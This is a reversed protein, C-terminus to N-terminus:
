PGSYPTFIGTHKGPLCYSPVLTPPLIGTHKGPLCYSPVLTPPLFVQLNVQFVTVLSWLLSDFNKRACKCAVDPSNIEACTCARKETPHNCFKGGFLTMGLVSSATLTAPSSCFCTTDAWCFLVNLQACAIVLLCVTSEGCPHVMCTVCPDNVITSM